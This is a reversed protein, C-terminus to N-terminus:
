AAFPTESEGAAAPDPAGPVVIPTVAPVNAATPSPEQTQLPLSPQASEGSLSEKFGRMGAGLSRGMEPLRKAGFVLLLLILLFAIHVPNDLGM